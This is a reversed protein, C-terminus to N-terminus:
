EKVVPLKAQLWANIGGDLNSVKSFGAKALIDCAKSSRVGGQCNVLIPKDKFKALEKQRAPLDKLPINKADAIHGTAFETAERVDIVIANARNILLVAEAASVGLNRKLLPLLLMFASGVALGIWMVNDTFFKM